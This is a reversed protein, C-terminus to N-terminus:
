KQRQQERRTSQPSAQWGPAQVHPEVGRGASRWCARFHHSCICWTSSRTPKTTTHCTYTCANSSSTFDREAFGRPSQQSRGRVVGGNAPALQVCERLVCMVTYAPRSRVVVRMQGGCFRDSVVSRVPFFQVLRSPASQSAFHTAAVGCSCVLLVPCSAAMNLPETLAGEGRFVPSSDRQNLDVSM